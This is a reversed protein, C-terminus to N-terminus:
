FTADRNKRRITKIEVHLQKEIAEIVKPILEHEMQPLPINGLNIEMKDLQILVGKPAYQDFMKELAPALNEWNLKSVLQQMQFTDQGKPLTLDFIQKQIIHRNQDKM